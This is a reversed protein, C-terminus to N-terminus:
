VFGPDQIRPIQIKTPDPDPDRSADYARALALFDRRFRHPNRASPLFRAQNSTRRTVNM